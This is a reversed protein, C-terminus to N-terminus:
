RKKSSFHEKEITKLMNKATEYEIFYWAWVGFAESNPYGVSDEMVYPPSKKYIKRKFVEYGIIEGDVSASYIYGFDNKDIQNYVFGKTDGRGEITKKLEKM